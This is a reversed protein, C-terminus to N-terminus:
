PIESRPGGANRRGGRRGDGNRVRPTNVGRMERREQRVQQRAQQRAARAEPTVAVGRARRNDRRLDQRDERVDGRYEQRADRRGQRFQDQTITGARYAQRNERVDGRYDRQEKRVDRRFDQWNDRIQGNGRYSGRRGQWYRQQGANWRYARRNSDYVYVGTGPYYYNNYWGFYSPTYGGYAYQPYGYAGYSGGYYPDSYYGGGGSYGLNVGSYGYGDTCAAAALGLGGALGAIALRKWDM